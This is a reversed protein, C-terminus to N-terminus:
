YVPIRIPLAANQECDPISAMIWYRGTLGHSLQSLNEM